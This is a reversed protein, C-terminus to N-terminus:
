RNLQVWSDIIECIQSHRQEVLMRAENSDKAEAYVTCVPDGPCFSAGPAERDRVWDPWDWGPPIEFRTSAYVVSHAMFIGDETISRLSPYKGEFVDCHAAFYSAEGEHLEFTAGPRPNIELLWCQSGDMIMDLTMLGSLDFNSVLSKAIKKVSIVFPEPLIKEAVSVAGGYVFDGAIHAKACWQESFGVVQANEGDALITATITKGTKFEEYYFNESSVSNKASVYSVEMGGSGGIRKRLWVGEQGPRDFRIEPTPIELASIASAFERINLLKSIVAASNGLVTRKEEVKAIQSPNHEFGGSYVVRLVQSPDLKEIGSSLEEGNLGMGDFGVALSRHSFRQTDLDKYLDITCVRLGAKHASAALPRVTIGIVLHTAPRDSTGPPM